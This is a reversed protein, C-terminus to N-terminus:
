GENNCWKVYFDEDKRKIEEMILRRNEEKWKIKSSYKEMNIHVPGIDCIEDDAIDAVIDVFHFCGLAGGLIKGVERKKIARIDKGVFDEAHSHDLDHCPPFPVRVANLDFDSIVGSACIKPIEACSQTM